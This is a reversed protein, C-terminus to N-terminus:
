QKMNKLKNVSSSINDKSQKTDGLIEYKKDLGDTDLGFVVKRDDIFLSKSHAKDQYQSNTRLFGTHNNEYSSTNSYHHGLFVGIGFVIFYSVILSSFLYIINNEIM